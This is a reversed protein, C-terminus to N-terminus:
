DKIRDLVFGIIFGVIYTPVAFLVGFVIAIFFVAVSNLAVSGISMGFFFFAFFVVLSICKAKAIRLEGTHRDRKYFLKSVLSTDSSSKRKKKVNLEENLVEVNGKFNELDDSKLNIGCQHCYTANEPNEFGCADCKM